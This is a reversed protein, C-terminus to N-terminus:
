GDDHLIEEASRWVHPATRTAARARRLNEFARIPDSFFM